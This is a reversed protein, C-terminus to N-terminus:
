PNRRHAVAAAGRGDAIAETRDQSRDEQANLGTVSFWRIVQGDPQLLARKPGSGLKSPPGLRRQRIPGLPNERVHLEAMGRHQGARRARPPQKHGLLVAVQIGQGVIGIAALGVQKQVHALHHLLEVPPRVFRQAQLRHVTQRKMGVKSLVAVAVHAIDHATRLAASPLKGVTRAHAPVRHALRFRRHAVHSTFYGDDGPKLAAM